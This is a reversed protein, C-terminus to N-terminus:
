IEAAHKATHVYEVCARGGHATPQQSHVCLNGHILVCGLQSVVFVIVFTPTTLTHIGLRFPLSCPVAPRMSIPVIFCHIWKDQFPNMPLHDFSWRLKRDQMIVLGGKSSTMVM